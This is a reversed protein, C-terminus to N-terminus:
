LSPAIKRATACIRTATNPISKAAISGEVDADVLDIWDRPGGPGSWILTFDVGPRVRDPALFSVQAATVTINEVALEASNSGSGEVIYRLVYDGEDLPMQMEVPSSEVLSM